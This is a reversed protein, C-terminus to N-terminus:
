EIEYKKLKEYLASRSVGLLQAAKCKNRGSMELVSMIHSREVDALSQGPSATPGVPQGGTANRDVRGVVKGGDGAARGTGLGGGALAAFSMGKLFNRRNFDM